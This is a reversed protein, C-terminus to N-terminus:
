FSVNLGFMLKRSVPYNWWIVGDASTEPDVVRSDTGLAWTFLNDASMFVRLNGLHAAKAWQSPLNYGVQLTKLKIYSGDMM